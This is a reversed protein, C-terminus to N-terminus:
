WTLKIKLWFIMGILAPILMNFLWMMLATELVFTPHIGIKNFVYIGVSGKILVDFFHLTPVLSSFLYMLTIGFYISFYDVKVDLFTMFLLFQFSFILYKILSLIIVHIALQKSIFKTKKLLFLLKSPLKKSYFLVSLVVGGFLLASALFYYGFFLCGMFGFCLTAFFQSMGHLSQFFVVKKWDNKKYFLIKLGYEGMRNPTILSLVFSSLSQKLAEYFSVKKIQNVLLEWKKIDIFWNAVSFLFMIGFLWIPYSGKFILAFSNANIQNIIM